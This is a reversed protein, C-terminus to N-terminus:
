MKGLSALREQRTADSIKIQVLIQNGIAVFNGHIVLDAGSEGAAGYIVAENDFRLNKWHPNETSDKGSLSKLTKLQLRPNTRLRTAIIEPIRVKLYELDSRNQQNHFDLILTRRIAQQTAIDTQADLQAPWWAALPIAVLLYQRFNAPAIAQALISRY